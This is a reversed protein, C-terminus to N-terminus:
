RIVPERKGRSQNNRIVQAAEYVGRELADLRDWFTIDPFGVLDFSIDEVGPGEKYIRLKESTIWPSLGQVIREYKNAKDEKKRKTYVRKVPVGLFGHVPDFEELERSIVDQFAISESAILSPTPFGEVPSGALSASRICERVWERYGQARHSSYVASIVMTGDLLLDVFVLASLNSRDSDSANWDAGVFRFWFGKKLIESLSITAVEPFPANERSAAEQQYRLGFRDPGLLDKQDMLYDWDCMTPALVDKKNWDLIAKTQIVTEPPFQRRQSMLYNYVDSYHWRSGIVWITAGPDLRAFLTSKLWEVAHHRESEYLLSGIDVIDDLVAFNLRM